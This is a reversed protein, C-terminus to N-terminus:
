VQGMPRKNTKSQKHRDPLFVLILLGLCSILGLFGFWESHGKGQAYKMCGWIFLVVGILVVMYGIVLAGDVDTLASGVGQIVLGVGVGINTKAATGPLM